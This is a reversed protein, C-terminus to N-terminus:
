GDAVEEEVVDLLPCQHPRWDEFKKSRCLDVLDDYGEFGEHNLIVCSDVVFLVFSKHNTELSFEVTGLFPCLDEVLM